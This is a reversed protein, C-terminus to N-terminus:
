QFRREMVLGDESNQYYRSWVDVQRYGLKEYLRVAGLNGRRVTLKVAPMGMRLECEAMLLAAIGQRRWDPLVGLTLIWGTKEAPRADGAVFGIMQDAGVAQLRVLGPFALLGVLELLPWAESGFYVKELAHLALLNRWSANQITYLHTSAANM